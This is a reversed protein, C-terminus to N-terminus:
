YFITNNDESDHDNDDSDDHPFAKSTLMARPRELTGSIKAVRSNLTALQHGQAHEYM